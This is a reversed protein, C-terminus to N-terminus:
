RAATSGGLLLLENVVIQTNTHTQGNSDKWTNYTLRGSVAVERGKSLFQQCTDALKGWVVLRHWVTEEVRKGQRLLVENTALSLRAVKLGKDLTKVEPDAGLRGILQVHNRFSKM